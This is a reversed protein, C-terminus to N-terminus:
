FDMRFFNDGNEYFKRLNKAATEVKVWNAFSADSLRLGVRLFCILLKEDIKEAPLDNFRQLFQVSPPLFGILRWVITSVYSFVTHKFTTTEDDIQVRDYTLLEILCEYLENYDNSNLLFSAALGDLKPVDCCSIEPALNYFLPKM